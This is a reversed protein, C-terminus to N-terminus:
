TATTCCNSYLRQVEVFVVVAEIFTSGNGVADTACCLGSNYHVLRTM